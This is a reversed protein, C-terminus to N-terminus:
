MGSIVDDQSDVYGEGYIDGDAYADYDIDGSFAEPFVRSPQTLLKLALSLGSTMGYQVLVHNADAGEEFSPPPTDALEALARVFGRTYPNRRWERYGVEADKGSSLTKRLAAIAPNFSANSRARVRAKEPTESV